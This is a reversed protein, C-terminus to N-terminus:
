VSKCMTVCKFFKLQLASKLINDLGPPAATQKCAVPTEKVKRLKISNAQQVISVMCPRAPTSAAPPNIDQDKEAM